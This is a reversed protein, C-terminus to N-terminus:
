EDSFGATNGFYLSDLAYALAANLKAKEMPAAQEAVSALPQALLPQLYVKLDDLASELSSLSELVHEPVTDDVDMASM